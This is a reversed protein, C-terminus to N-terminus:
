FGHLNLAFAMFKKMKDGIEEFFASKRMDALTSNMSNRSLSLGGSKKLYFRTKEENLQKEGKYYLLLADVVGNM